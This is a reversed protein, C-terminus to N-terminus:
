WHDVQGAISPPASPPSIAEIKLRTRVLWLALVLVLIGLANISLNTVLARSADYPPTTESAAKLGQAGAVIELSYRVAPLIGVVLFEQLRQVAPSRSLITNLVELLIVIFLVEDVGRTVALPLDQRRQVAVVLDQVTGLLTILGFVVLFLAVSYELGRRMLVFSRRIQQDLPSTSQQDSM